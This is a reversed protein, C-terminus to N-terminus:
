QLDLNKVFDDNAELLKKIEQRIDYKSMEEINKEECNRRKCLVKYYSIQKSTPKENKQKEDLLRSKLEKQIRKQAEYIPKQAKKYEYYKKCARIYTKLDELHSDSSIDVYDFKYQGLKRYYDLEEVLNYFLNEADCDLYNKVYIKVFSLFDAKQNKTLDNFVRSKVQFM